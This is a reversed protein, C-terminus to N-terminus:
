LAVESHSVDPIHLGRSAVDTAVLISFEGQHFQNLLRERKNQPIDGSIIAAPINNGQLYEWIRITASKTNAFIISREPQFHQILGLLLPIKEHNAPHYVSQTIRDVTPTEGEVRVLEANNMHEYALEMVKHTLCNCAHWFCKSWSVDASMKTERM